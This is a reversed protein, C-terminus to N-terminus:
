AGRRMTRRVVTLIVVGIVIVAGIGALIAAVGLGVDPPAGNANIVARPAGNLTYIFRGGSKIPTKLTYQTFPRQKDITTNQTVTFTQESIVIGTDTPLLVQVTDTAYPYDRDIPAGQDYPIQYSFVIEQIQNPLVPKTDEVLPANLDGGVAFRTIPATNFGIARAGIPLPLSVSIPMGDASKQTSLYFRDATNIFDVTELVRMLKGPIFSLLQQTQSIHIGAPDHTGLYLTIPMELTSQTTLTVPASGQTIGDYDTTIVCLDGPLASVSDARFTDAATIPITRTVTETVNTTDAAQAQESHLIHLTLPMGAPITTGATGSKVTGTVTLSLPATDAHAGKGFILLVAAIIGIRLCRIM